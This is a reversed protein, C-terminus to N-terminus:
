VYNNKKYKNKNEMENFNSSNSSYNENYNNYQKKQTNQRKNNYSSNLMKEENMLENYGSHDWRETNSM